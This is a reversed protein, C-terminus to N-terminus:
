RVKSSNAQAERLQYDLIKCLLGLYMRTQTKALMMFYGVLGDKGHGDSGILTAALLIAEMVENSKEHSVKNDFSTQLSKTIKTQNM